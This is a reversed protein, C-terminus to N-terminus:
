YEIEASLQDISSDQGSTQPQAGPPLTVQPPHFELRLVVRLRKEGLPIQGDFGLQDSLEGPIALELLPEAAPCLRREAVPLLEIEDLDQILVSATYCHESLIEARVTGLHLTSPDVGVPADDPLPDFFVEIELLNEPGSIARLYSNDSAVLQALGGRGQSGTLVSYAVAEAPFTNPEPGPETGGLNASAPGRGKSTRKVLAIPPAPPLVQGGLPVLGRSFTGSFSEAGEKSSVLFDPGLQLSQTFFGTVVPREAADLALGRGEDDETGGLV